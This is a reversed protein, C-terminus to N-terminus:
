LFNYNINVQKRDIMCKVVPPRSTGCILARMGEKWLGVHDPINWCHHGGRGEEENKRRRRVRRISAM